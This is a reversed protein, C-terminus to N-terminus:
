ADSNARKLLSDLECIRRRIENQSKETLTPDTLQMQLRERQKSFYEYMEAERGKRDAEAQRVAEAEAAVMRRYSIIGAGEFVLPVTKLLFGMPNRVDRRARAALAKERVIAIIEDTSASPCATRCATLLSVAAKVDALGVLSALAAVISDVETTTSPIEEEEMGLSSGLPPTTAVMTGPTTAVRTEPTMGVVLTPDPALLDAMPTEMVVTASDGDFSIPATSQDWLDAM